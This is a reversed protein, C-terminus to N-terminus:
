KAMEESLKDFTERARTETSFDQRMEGDRTVAVVHFEKACLPHHWVELKMGPM